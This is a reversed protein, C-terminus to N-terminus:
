KKAEWLACVFDPKPCFEAARNSLIYARTGPPQYDACDIAKCVGFPRVLSDKRWHKCSRCERAPGHLNKTIARGKARLRELEKKTM